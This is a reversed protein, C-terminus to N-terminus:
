PKELTFLIGLVRDNELRKRERARLERYRETAEEACRTNGSQRCLRALLFHAESMEPELLLGRDLLARARDYENNDAALKALQYLAPALRPNLELAKDLLERVRPESDNGLRTLSVAALYYLLSNGSDREIGQEFSRVADQFRGAEFYSNGLYLYILPDKPNKALLTQFTQQAKEMQGRLQYAGGLALVLNRNGPFARAGAALVIEALDYTRRRLAMLGLDFVYSPNKPNQRIARQYSEVAEKVRDLKDYGYGLLNHVEATPRETALQELLTVGDNWRDTRYLALALNYHAAYPDRYTRAAIELHRVAAAPDGADAALTGLYFNATGEKPDAALAARFQSIADDRRGLSLAVLGRLSVLQPVLGGRRAMLDLTAAAQHYQGALYQASALDALLAPDSHRKVSRELFRVALAPHGRQVCVAGIARELDVSLDPAHLLKELLARAEREQGAKLYRELLSVASPDQSLGAAFIGELLLLLLISM